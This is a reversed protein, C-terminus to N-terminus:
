YRLTELGGAFFRNVVARLEARLGDDDRGSYREYLAPALAGFLDLLRPDFHSGRGAALIKMTEALPLPEKYPRRSTLADFMDAIAFVRAEVPIAEGATGRSYGNGDYKEHHGGVVTQADTLWASRRVIDLGHDVHTQMVRFEDPDLRAPKHLIHDRIGIKGVDHLFAGKILARMRGAELGAAEALQLSYLTVRYNHADTDSDRKAIASGLAELTDLNAALLDQSYRALRRVLTLVVPYLLAVTALVILAVYLATQVADRRMRGVTDDSLRFLGRAYAIRTGGRDTVPVIMHLYPRGLVGARRLSYEHDAPFEPGAARVRGALTAADAAAPRAEEALVRGDPDYFQAYVFRGSDPEVPRTARERLAQQLTAALDPAQGPRELLERV